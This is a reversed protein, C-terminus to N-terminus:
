RVLQFDPQMVVAWLLDAAKQEDLSGELMPKLAELEAASPDRGLAYEFIWRALGQADGHHRATLAKAGKTLLDTLFQGNALDIAELTTFIAPRETVVQERNPRGLTRMLLNSKVLSARVVAKDEAPVGALAAKMRQEFRAYVPAADIVVAKAWKTGDPLKARADPITSTWDWTADTGVVLRQGAATVTRVETILAAANPSKGGNKVVITINNAGARLQGTLPILEATTVDSDSAIEQSNVFLRYENDCTIAIVASVFNEPANIVKRFTAQEGAAAKRFDENTWIWKATLPEDTEKATAKAPATTAGRLVNADAKAPGSGTIQWVADMFQEATMRRATPGRYVFTEASADEGTATSESQYAQSTAIHAIMKKLDYGNETLFSSLHDLLDANWPETSMADVPHVIGRGMLRHWLRNVITRSFRGNEPSTMLAALQKLREPQPSDAKVNGLEPFLWAPTAKRGQPKDCRNVEVPETAYVAALDYCEDLKWRDIFSDHCSACKLNIGLFVQGLNQAFQIERVQSANVKGRWKIGNIFGESEPGPAILERVFQDYPKNDILSKYLWGTIQKRGGDIYGTGAYDNRLLDNWFVLWHEAYAQTDDLLARVLKERKGDSKDALFAARKEPTPLVGTIDLSARRLFTEDDVAKPTAVKNQALYADIIRDVPHERGNTAAPLVPKRPKLPPEYGQKKFAFGKEWELGDDIWAKLVAVKEASLRAGKPPMMEDKDTSLVAEILKSEASKGIKVVEGNEGGKLLSERTNFSFGGKKKEGAHCEACHERLIPVIQHSFDIQARALASQFVLISILARTKMLRDVYM